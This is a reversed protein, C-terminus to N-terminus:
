RPWATPKPNGEVFGYLRFRRLIEAGRANDTTDLLMRQMAQFDASSISRRAVLPPFGYEPSRAVIRTRGALKPNLEALSDWVYSDVAGGHVLGAAM